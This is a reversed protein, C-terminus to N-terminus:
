IRIESITEVRVRFLKALKIADEVNVKKIDRRRNNLSLLTSYSIDTIESISKLKIQYYNILLNLVSKELYLRNFEKIIQSFDMEHYIEFYEYMKRIPIYLFILEFTFHTEKQIRLYSEAAWLCQKYIPVNELDVNLEPLVDKTLSIDIIIPSIYDDREIKQFYFSNSINKELATLSYKYEYALSFIRELLAINNEFYNDNM